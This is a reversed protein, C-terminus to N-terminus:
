VRKLCTVSRNMTYDTQLRVILYDCERKTEDLMKIPGAFLLDFASSSIGTKM